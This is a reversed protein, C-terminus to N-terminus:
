TGCSEAPPQRSKSLRYAPILKFIPVATVCHNSMLFDATGGSLCNDRSAPTDSNM